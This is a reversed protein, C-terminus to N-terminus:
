TMIVLFIPIGLWRNTVVRDIKDSTTLKKGSKKYCGKLISAIYEYRENTIISESDDNKEKELSKVIIEVAKAESAALHLKEMVVKDREIM